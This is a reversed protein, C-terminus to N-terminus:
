FTGLWAKVAMNRVLFWERSTVYLDCGKSRESDLLERRLIQALGFGQGGPTNQHAFQRVKIEVKFCGMQM